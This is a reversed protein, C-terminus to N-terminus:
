YNELNKLMNKKKQINDMMSGQKFTGGKEMKKKNDLQKRIANLGMGGLTLAGAVAGATAIPGEDLAVIEQVTEDDMQTMVYHAENITDAHGEHLLYGLVIHYPEYNEFKKGRKIMDLKYKKATQSGPYQKIFDTKTIEGKKMRQFDANMERKKVIKDSGHIVENRAIMKDRASGPKVPRVTSGLKTKSVVPIHTSLLPKEKKKKKDDKPTEFDKMTVEKPKSYKEISKLDIKKEPPKVENKTEPPKVENKKTDDKKTDDKTEPKVENKVNDNSKDKFYKSNDIEAPNVDKDNLQKLYEKQSEKSKFNAPHEASSDFFSGTDQKKEKKQDKNVLNTDKKSDNQDKKNKKDILDKISDDEVIHLAFEVSEKNTKKRVQDATSYKGDKDQLVTGKYKMDNRVATFMNRIFPLANNAVALGTRSVNGGTTADAGIGIGIATPISFLKKLGTKIGQKIISKAADKPNLSPAEQIQRPTLDTQDYVEIGNGEFAEALISVCLEEFEEKTITVDEVVSEQQIYISKYASNLERIQKGTLSM